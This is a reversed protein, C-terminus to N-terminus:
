LNGADAAVEPKEEPTSPTSGNKAEYETFSLEVDKARTVGNKDPGVTRMVIFSSGGRLTRLWAKVTNTDGFGDAHGGELIRHLRRATFAIPPVKTEPHPVESMSFFTSFTRGVLGSKPQGEVKDIILVARASPAKSDPNVYGVIDDVTVAYTGPGPFISSMDFRRNDEMNEFIAELSDVEPITGDALQTYRDTM